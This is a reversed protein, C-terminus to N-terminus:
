KRWFAWWPASEQPPAIGQRLLEKDRNCSHNAAEAQGAFNWLEGNTEAASRTSIPGEIVCPATLASIPLRVEMPPTSHACATLFASTLGLVFLRTTV